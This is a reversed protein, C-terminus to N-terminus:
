TKQLAKLLDLVEIKSGIKLFSWGGRKKDRKENRMGLHEM